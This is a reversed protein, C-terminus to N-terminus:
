EAPAEPTPEEYAPNAVEVVIESIRFTKNAAEETATLVITKVNEYKVDSDASLMVIETTVETSNMTQASSFVLEGNSDFAEVKFGVWNAMGYFKFGELTTAENLVITAALGNPVVGKAYWDVDSWGAWFGATETKGDFIYKDIAPMGNGGSGNGGNATITADAITITKTRSWYAYFTVDGVLSNTNEVKTTFEPELYWGIFTVGEKIPNALAFDKERGYTAANTAANTAGVQNLVYTINYVSYEWKAYLTVGGVTTPVTTVPEGTFNADLYWGKFTCGAYTPDALTLANQGVNEVTYTTPNTEANTGGNLEYTINYPTSEWKAYLTLNGTQGATSTVRAGQCYLDAYWGGFSIGDVTSTADMIPLEVAANYETPNSAHNTGKDHLVYTITYTEMAWKAYVTVTGKTGKEIGTTSQTLEKDSYWGDFKYGAKTPNKLTVSEFENYTEPNEKHNKGGDLEYIIDFREYDYKAYLTIDGTSGPKISTVEKTLSADSYWGVFDFGVKNAPQLTITSSNINYASPNGPHNVGDNLEYNIKYDIVKYDAYLTIDGTNGATISEVKQTKEADSYWAVFEYGNKKAPSLEQVTEITYKTPNTGLNIGDYLVYEIKYEIPTKVPNVTVDSTINSFDTIEWAVTYGTVPKVTPPILNEGAKIEVKEETGDTNKFTVTYTSQTTDSNTDSNADTNTDTDNNKNGCSVLAFSMVVILLLSVLALWKISKKM